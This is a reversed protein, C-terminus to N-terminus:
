AEDIRHNPFWLHYWLQVSSTRFGSKQYMRQAPINSGQTVVNVETVNNTSFWDMASSVLAMGIGKGQSVKDVGMLGISGKDDGLLHCSIYGLLTSHNEAVFVFDAYGNCSKEIWTAYLLDCKDLPFNTDYYFRSNSHGSMAIKRLIPVDVPLCPRIQGNFCLSNVANSEPLHNDLTIRIDVFQFGSNEALRITTRDSQDALFYLCDIRSCNCWHFIELISNERLQTAKCRAIRKGFFMSDWELYECPAVDKKLM